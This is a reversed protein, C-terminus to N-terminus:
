QGNAVALNCFPQVSSVKTSGTVWVGPSQLRPFAHGSLTHDFGYTTAVRQNLEPITGFYLPLSGDPSLSDCYTPDCPIWGYGPVLFEAWVHWQNTGVMFGSVARAPVGINRCAAVFLATFFGCDGKGTRYATVADPQKDMVVYQMKAVVAQFLKQVADYPKMTTKYTRPLSKAVFAGIDSSKSQALTESRLWTSTASPLSRYSNFTVTRLLSPNIRCSSAVTVLRMNVSEVKSLSIAPQSFPTSTIKTGQQVAVLVRQFGETIPLPSFWQLGSATGKTLKASAGISGSLSQPSFYEIGTTPLTASIGVTLPDALANGSSEISVKMTTPTDLFDTFPGWTAWCDGSYNFDTTTRSMYPLAFTLRYPGAPAGDVHFKATMYFPEGLNVQVPNGATDSPYATRLDFSAASAMTATFVFIAATFGKMSSPILLIRAM